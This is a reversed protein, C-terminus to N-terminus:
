RDGQQVDLAAWVAELADVINEDCPTQYNHDSDCGVTSYCEDVLMANVSEMLM